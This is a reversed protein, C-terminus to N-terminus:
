KKILRKTMVMNGVNVQVTYMGAALGDLNIAQTFSGSRSAENEVVLRGIADFIRIAVTASQDLDVMVNTQSSAPNPYLFFEGPKLERSLTIERSITQGARDTSFVTVDLRAPISTGKWILKNGDLILDANAAITYTHINDVADITSLVGVVQGSRIDKVLKDNSITVDLAKPKDQVLIQIAIPEDLAFFENAVVDAKLEYIGPTLQDYATANLTMALKRSEFWTAGMQDVKKKITEVPTNWAVTILDTVVRKNGNAAPKHIVISGGGLVTADDSSESKGRKNDYLLTSSSNNDWIMIRFKDFGGGGSVQGDIAVVRFKHNGVGNVTGTGTYTAKAGSIVLQMNDHTASSFHLDGAKFQFNTNGDVESTNNKGTKYKANFGFNAKGVASAKDGTMAGVPSDIWGGGTVFGGAPDYVPLFVVESISCGGGVVAKVQYVDAALGSVILTATGDGITLSSGKLVDDLYFSVSVGSVAPSVISRLTASSGLAVPTSSASADIALGTVTLTGDIFTIQYNSSTLGSPMVDYLGACSAVTAATAFGLTGGLNAASEGQVFVSYSVTFTPNAQGAFKTQDDATITLAKKGIAFGYAVSSKANYNDDAAVTAVVSYSGANTPKTASAAYTTAPVGVYSFTVAGSSGTKTVQDPGQQSGNYTFPGAANVSITSEAKVAAVNATVEPAANYNDNGSQNYKVVGTGIGSNMTYLGAVNSLPATSTYVVALSSSASAAVTFTTNFIASAPSATTVTITQDAKAAAVFENVEPAANYNDNGAQNYKVVGTGVGSNMTYLGDVNSLPASSTYGVSLGSSATAAVTFTTNFIASAPSATTVTITQNAKNITFNFPSSSKGFFNDDEAVTATVQYSGANTPKIASAAYTTPLVGVYSFTVSGASGSNTVADPGQPNNNFTFPGAANVSITSGAKGVVLTGTTTARNASNANETLAVTFNYSGAAVSAGVSLTLTAGPFVNPGNATFSANSSFGGSVGAPLGSVTYTGTVTGSSGRLSTISYTPSSATGYVSAGSQTGVSVSGITGGTVNFANSTGTVSSKTATITAAIFAPNITVSHSSLVGNSFNSTNGSGSTLTANSSIAVDNPNGSFSTVTNNFQDRATIKINFATGTTQNPINGGASSEVFFNNLAGAVQSLSVINQPSTLSELTGTFGLVISGSNPLSNGNTSRVEVGSITIQDNTNTNATGSSTVSVSITITSTTSSLISVSAVDRIGSNPTVSVGIGTTKYEWGIPATLVIQNFSTTFDNRGSSGNAERVIVNGLSTYVPSAANAARDATINLLTPLSANGGVVLSADDTFETTAILGSTLGTATLVFHVGLHNEKILFGGYYINGNADAIAFNDHSNACTEPKPTEEFHFDVREGPEWGTGSIKVYEGPAYDDKDTTVTTQGLVTNWSAFALILFSGM